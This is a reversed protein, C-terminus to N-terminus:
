GKFAKCSTPKKTTHLYRICKWLIRIDDNVMGLAANCKVCLLGRVKLTTHCHDIYLKRGTQPKGCIKCCGKQEEMMHYYDAMTIGLKKYLYKGKWSRETEKKTIIPRCAKCIGNSELKPDEMKKLSYTKYEDGCVSCKKLTKM